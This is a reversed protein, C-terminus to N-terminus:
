VVSTIARVPEDAVSKPTTRRAYWWDNIRPTLYLVLAATAFGAVVDVAYHVRLYLTALYLGLAVPLYGWFLRRAARWMLAMLVTTMATHLSPFCDRATGKLNNITDLLGPDSSWQPLRDPYIESQFLYPGIAPVSVYGLYGIVATLTIALSLDRFARTRDRLYLYAAYTPIAIGYSAYCLVLIETMAPSGIHDNLWRGADVGLVAHDIAILHADVVHPRLLPTLDHLTEYIIMCAWLPSFERLTRGVTHLAARAQRHRWWGRLFIVLCMGGVIAGFRWNGLMRLLTAYGDGFYIMIVGLVASLALFLWEEPRLRRIREARRRAGVGTM